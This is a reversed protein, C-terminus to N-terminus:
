VECCREIVVPFRGAVASEKVEVDHLPHMPPLYAHLPDHWTPQGAGVWDVQVVRPTVSYSEAAVTDAVTERGAGNLGRM